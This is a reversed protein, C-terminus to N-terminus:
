KKKLSYLTVVGMKGVSIHDGPDLMVGSMVIPLALHWVVVMAFFFFTACHDFLLKGFM